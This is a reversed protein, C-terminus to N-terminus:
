RLGRRVEAARIAKGLLAEDGSRRAARAASADFVAISTARAASADFVAISTADHAPSSRALDFVGVPKAM